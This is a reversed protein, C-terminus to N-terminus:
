FEEPNEPAELVSGDAFLIKSPNWVFKLKELPTTKLDAESKNLYPINYWGTGNLSDAAALTNTQKISLAILENGLLDNINIEGIFAEIDKGSKNHITYAIGINGSIAYEDKSYGKKTVKVSILKQMDEIKKKYEAIKAEKAKRKGAISDLLEKYTHSTKDGTIKQGILMFASQGRLNEFDAETYEPHNKKIDSIDKTFTEADIKKNITSTCSGIIVALMIIFLFVKRM